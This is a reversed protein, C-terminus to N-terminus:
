RDCPEKYPLKLHNFIDRETKAPLSTKGRTLESQNLKMGMEKAKGRMIINNEKSGTLYLLFYPYSEVSCVMVDIKYSEGQWQIIASAKEEGMAYIEIRFHTKIRDMADILPISCLVDIDSSFPKCRRYSGCIIFNKEGLVRNLKNRIQDIIVRKISTIVDHKLYVQAENPLVKWYKASRLDKMSKVGIAILERARKHGIGHIASLDDIFELKPSKGDAIVQSLKDKMYNSLNLTNIDAITLDTSAEGANSIIKKVSQLAVIRARARANNEDVAVSKIFYDVWKILVEIKM